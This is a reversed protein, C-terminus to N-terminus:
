KKNGFNRYKEGLEDIRLKLAQKVIDFAELEKDSLGSQVTAASNELLTMEAGFEAMQSMFDLGIQTLKIQDKISLDDESKGVFEESDNFLSELSDSWKNIVSESGEIFIVVEENNKLEKPIDIKLPELHNTSKNNSSCSVLVLVVISIFILKIAKM